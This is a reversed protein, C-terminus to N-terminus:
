LKIAETSKRFLNMMANSHLRKMLVPDRKMLINMSPKFMMLLHRAKSLYAAAEPNEEFQSLQRIYEDLYTNIEIIDNANIIKFKIVRDTYDVMAAITARTMVIANKDPISFPELEGNVFAEHKRIAYEPIEIPYTMTNIFTTLDGPVSHGYM